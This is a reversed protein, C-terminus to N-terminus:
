KRASVKQNSEELVTILANNIGRGVLKRVKEHPEVPSFHDTVTASTVKNLIVNGSKVELLSSEISVTAEFTVISAYPKFVLMLLSPFFYPNLNGNVSIDYLSSSLIYDSGFASQIEAPSKSRSDGPLLAVKNFLKGTTLMAASEQPDSLAETLRDGKVQIGINVQQKAGTTNVEKIPTVKLTACGGLLLSGTLLMFLVSNMIKNAKM